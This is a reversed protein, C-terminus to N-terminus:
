LIIGKAGLLGRIPEDWPTSIIPPVFLIIEVVYATWLWQIAPPRRLWLVQLGLAFVIFDKLFFIAVGSPAINFKRAMGEFVLVLVLTFLTWRLCRLALPSNPRELLPLPVPTRM